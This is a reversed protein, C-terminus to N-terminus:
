SHPVWVPGEETTSVDGSMDPNRIIILLATTSFCSLQWCWLFRLSAGKRRVSVSTIGATVEKFCELLAQLPSIGFGHGAQCSGKM